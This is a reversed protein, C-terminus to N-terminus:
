YGAYPNKKRYNSYALGGAVGAAGLGAGAGVMKAGTTLNSTDVDGVIPLTKTQAQPGPDVKVKRRFLGRRKPASSRITDLTARAREREASSGERLARSAVGRQRRLIRKTRRATVRARRKTEKMASREASGPIFRRWGLSAATDAIEKRRGAAAGRLRALREPHLLTASIKELEDYMAQAVVRGRLEYENM